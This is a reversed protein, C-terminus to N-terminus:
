YLLIVYEVYGFEGDTAEKYEFTNIMGYSKFQVSGATAEIELDAGLYRDINFCFRGLKEDYLYSGEITLVEDVNSILKFGTSNHIEEGNIKLRFDNANIAKM